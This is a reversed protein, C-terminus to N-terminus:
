TGARFRGSGAGIWVIVLLGALAVVGCGIISLPQRDLSLVGFALSLAPLFILRNGAWRNLAAPNTITSYDISNLIRRDGAFRVALAAVFLIPTVLLLLISFIAV